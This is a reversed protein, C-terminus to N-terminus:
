AFLKQEDFEVQDRMMYYAARALKHGLAFYAVAQNTKSAKRNFFARAHDNYRRAYEAAESFAWALYKNGNKTNGKGKKKNNSIWNAPVKRCYSAFDGVNPFRDIKGTELMITLSLIKGVGPMSQLCQFSKRLKVKKLVLSEIKSIQGSLFDITEKSVEGSLALDEQGALLPAVHNERLQKMKNGSLSCGCNRSIIGQLSNILSTRLRVLHGRKRLLDRVPRDEKPYIYGQPLIGLKAMHALWFADHKDNVHKLGKYQQMASPNALLVEYGTDMLCDVLWYWNFTSEVVINSLGKRFPELEALIVDQMNPLRKHFIRKDNQDLIGVQSNNSHLDIGAYLTTM